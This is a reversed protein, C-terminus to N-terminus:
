FALEKSKILYKKLFYSDKLKILKAVDKNILRYYAEVRIRDAGKPIFLSYTRQEHPKLRNDSKIDFALHPETIKGSDDVYVAGIKSVAEKVVRKGQLFKVDIEVERAGYGTPLKHPTTNIIMINISKKDNVIKIDLASQLVSQDRGGVFLHDRYPRIKVGKEKEYFPAVVDKERGSMHCDICKKESKVSDFEEGTSYIVVGFNSDGGYHCVKCLDDASDGFHERKFSKHYSGRSSEFPGLMVGDESWEVAELGRKWLDTSKHIKDVNHCVICNVGERLYKKNLEGELKAKEKKEDGYARNIKYEYDVKKNGVRPNHCTACQLAVEAEDKFLTQAVFGIVKKYLPNLNIHSKAHWSNKWKGVQRPHCAVCSSSTAYKKSIQASFLFIPLLLLFLARKSL